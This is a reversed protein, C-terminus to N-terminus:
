NSAPMEHEFQPGNQSVVNRIHWHQCHIGYFIRRSLFSSNKYLLYLCVICAIDCVSAINPAFRTPSYRSNKDSTPSYRSEKESTPSYRSDKDSSKSQSKLSSDQNPTSEKCVNNDGTGVM